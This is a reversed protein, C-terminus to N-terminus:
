PPKFVHLIDTLFFFLLACIMVAIAMGPHKRTWGRLPSKGSYNWVFAVLLSFPLLIRM